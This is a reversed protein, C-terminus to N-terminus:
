DEQPSIQTQQIERVLDSPTPKTAVAAVCLGEDEMSARTTNGIAAFRLASWSTTKRLAKVAECVASPSFFVVWCPKSDQVALQLCDGLDERVATEYVRLEEVAVQAEQLIGPLVDLRKDGTLFM